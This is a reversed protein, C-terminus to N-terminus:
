RGLRTLTPTTAVTDAGFLILVRDAHVEECIASAGQQEYRPDVLILQFHRALFPVLANAFSDKFLLLTPKEPHADDTVSLRAYNGGLFVEYPDDGSLSAMDYLTHVREGTEGNIVTYRSDKEYRYLTITDPPTHSIGARAFSSGLFAETATVPTFSAIDYPEIGLSPALHVYALYAGETTWHHDTRYFMSKGDMAAERLAPTLDTNQPLAQDILSIIESTRTTDYDPPLYATLVDVARPLVSVTVPLSIREALTRIAELNHMAVSLDDYEGRAILYDSKGFLMGNNEGKGLILEAEAKLATFHERLPFHDHYFTSLSQFFSGDLVTEARVKPFPALARREKVSFDRKPLIPLALAFTAILLAAVTVTLRDFVSATKM